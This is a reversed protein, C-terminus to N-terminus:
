EFGEYFAIPIQKPTNDGPAFPLRTFWFRGSRGDDAELLYEQNVEANVANIGTAVVFGEVSKLSGQQTIQLHLEVNEAIITGDRLIKANLTEM